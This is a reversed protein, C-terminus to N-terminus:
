QLVMAADRDQTGDLESPQSYHGRLAFYLAAILCAFGGVELSIQVGFRQAIWGVQLAGLPALGMFVLTRLSLIRGRLEDPSAVQVISNSVALFLMMGFGVVVLWMVSLSYSRTNSLAIIGAPALISGAVVIKGPVFARGFAAVAIAAGVAGAGAASVLLGFREPGVRLVEKALAPILTGYQLGFVSAIGT